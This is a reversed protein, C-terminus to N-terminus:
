NQSFQGHRGPAIEAAMLGDAPCLLGFHGDMGRGDGLRHSQIAEGFM